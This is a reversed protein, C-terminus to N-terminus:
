AKLLKLVAQPDMNAQALMAATAQLQINYAALQTSQQAIDVDSLSSITSTNDAEQSQLNTAVMNLRSQVGGLTAQGDAVQVVAANLSAVATSDSASMTFNGSADQQMVALTAGSQLNIDGITMQDSPSSGIGFSIGGSATSGFLTNGEFSASPSAVGTGGIQAASGGIITRLQTQLGSFESEYAAKDSAGKTPDQSDQALESMRTLINSITSLDSSGAQAYSLADQVNTSAAGLRDNTAGLSDVGAQASANSGGPLIKSGSSLEEITQGYLGQTRDLLLADNM